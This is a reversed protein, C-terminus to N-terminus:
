AESDPLKQSHLLLQKGQNLASFFDDLPIGLKGNCSALDELKFEIEIEDIGPEQSLTVIHHNLYLINVVMEKYELDSSLEIEFELNM